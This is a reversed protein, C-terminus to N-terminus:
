LTVCPYNTSTARRGTRAHPLSTGAPARPESADSSRRSFTSTVVTGACVPSGTACHDRRARGGDWTGRLETLQPAPAVAQPPPGAALERSGGHLLARCGAAETPPQQLFLQRFGATGETSQRRSLTLASGAAGASGDGRGRLCTTPLSRHWRGPVWPHLPRARALSGPSFVNVRAHACVCRSAYLTKSFPHVKERMEAFVDRGAFPVPNPPRVPASTTRARPRRRPSAPSAGARGRGGRRPGQFHGLVNRANEARPSSIKGSHICVPPGM